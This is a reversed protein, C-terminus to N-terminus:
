DQVPLVALLDVVFQVRVDRDAKDSGQKADQFAAQGILLLIELVPLLHFLHGVLFILLLSRSGGGEGRANRIYERGM